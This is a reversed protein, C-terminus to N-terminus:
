PHRHREERAPDGLQCDLHGPAGEEFVLHAHHQVAHVDQALGGFLEVGFVEAVVSALVDLLVDAGIQVGIVLDLTALILIQLLQLLKHKALERKLDPIHM